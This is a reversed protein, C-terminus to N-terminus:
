GGPGSLSRRGDEGSSDPRDILADHEAAGQDDYDAAQDIKPRRPWGRRWWLFVCLVSPAMALLGFGLFALGLRLNEADSVDALRGRVGLSGFFLCPVGLFLFILASVLSIATRM